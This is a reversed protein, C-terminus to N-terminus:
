NGDMRDFIRQAEALANDLRDVIVRGRKQFGLETMAQGIREDRPLQLRDRLLWLCLEILQSESYDKINTYSPIWPRNGRDHGVHPLPEPAGAAVSTWPAKSTRGEDADMVAQKWAEVIKQTEYEPNEVWEMSWMRHFRWGLRELHEQRLRDRDRASQAKHYREGDTEVALVMEGPRKPHAIAFDIRYGAVGWQPWVPLGARQLANHVSTEFGNLFLSQATPGAPPRSSDEVYELYLRLLESGQHKATRLKEPSLESPHFSSVVTLRKRARTIAVNLRRHGDERTLSGFRHSLMGASTKAYGISLIIADREDGQVNELSKIFFRVRPGREDSFFDSLEPREKLSDRLKLDIRDAHRQGMTIVGLGEEPHETAHNLALRVVEGVEEPASGHQGPAAVGNVVNLQLPAQKATGPFTILDGGYIRVNSFAILREDRSRYHWSLRSHYPIIDLLRDLISEYSKLDDDIDDAEDADAADLAGALARRFYPTPPLQKPDGAVVLQRGRMISTMADQPEVQSAEDFIVMDFLMEAPLMRSVVVPSMAWCPRAALLVDPAKEILRRVSMHGRKRAAQNRVVQRQEPHADQVERLRRAVGRRVRASASRKHEIDVQRFERAVRSQQAGAFGRLHRSELRFEDLLSNLWAWQLIGAATATDADRGAIEDLLPGIGMADFRDNMQNLEPIRLLTSRDADLEGLKTEVDFEPRQDLNEMRAGLAIASLNDRLRGYADIAREIGPVAVPDQSTQSLDRWQGYQAAASALAEHLPANKRLGIRSLERAIKVVRRREWFGIALPHRSRWSRDGTAFLLKDLDQSFIKEDFIELTHQVSNLLSLIDQWGAVTVPPSMGVQRVLAELESRTARFNAGTVADLRLLLDRLEKEGRLDCRSWISEGRRVRLGGKDVYAKLDTEVASIADSGLARLYSDRFRINTAYDRSLGVAESQARYYSVGWPDYIHHLSEPHHIVDVRLQALRRHLETVDPPPESGARDLSEALQQAIRRRNIQKNHLDFVLHALDAEALMGTVAEIAARKEAVFLVRRGLAAMGAIINAITQSKGTGPPGDILVHAGGLARTIVVQQSSDADHVLYERSPPMDDSSTAPDHVAAARLADVAPQYGGVAAIVDHGALLGASNQLDKVMPLKDYNFIGVVVRNELEVALRGRSIAGALLQYAQRVQEAPDSIEALLASTKESFEEADIDIGFERDLAYLLVPNVEIEEAAELTFDTEGSTRALVAVSQLLLPARLNSTAASAQGGPPSVRVLGRALHGVDIGQEEDFALIKKRLSRARLCAAKHEVPDTVLANLRIKRGTLLGTLAVLNAHTLDLTSTKTDKFYLLSNTRGLDILDDAWRAAASRVVNLRIADAEFMRAGKWDHM